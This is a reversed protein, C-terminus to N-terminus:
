GDNAYEGQGMRLMRTKNFNKLDIVESELIGVKAVM